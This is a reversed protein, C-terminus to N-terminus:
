QVDQGIIVMEVVYALPINTVHRWKPENTPNYDMGISVTNATERVLFGATELVLGDITDEASEVYTQMCADIWKVYVLPNTLKPFKPKRPRKARSSKPM